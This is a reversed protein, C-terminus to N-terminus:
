INRAWIWDQWRNNNDKKKFFFMCMIGETFSCVFLHVEVRSGKLLAIYTSNVHVHYDLWNIPSGARGMVTYVAM